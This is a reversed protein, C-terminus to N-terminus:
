QLCTFPHHADKKFAGGWETVHFNGRTFPTITPATTSIPHDIPQFYLTIRLVSDPTPSIILPSITDLTSSHILSIFYFPSKPLTKLWYQSFDNTEKTNLGLKPLLTSFLIHLDKYSSIYGTNDNAPHLLVDPIAAEYYLYPYTKNQYTVVGNPHALVQWGQTPYPPDTYLLKGKPSIKVSIAEDTPPYLYVAPKCYPSVWPTSTSVHPTPSIFGLTHLQESTHSGYGSIVITPQGPTVVISSAAKAACDMIPKPTGPTPLDSLRFYTDYITKSDGYSYIGGSGAGGGQCNAKCVYLIEENPIPYCENGNWIQDNTGKGCEGALGDSTNLIIPDGNFKQGSDRLHYGGERLTVQSKLLGYQANNYSFTHGADTLPSCDASDCCSASAGTITLLSPMNPGSFPKLIGSIGVGFLVIALLLMVGIDGEVLFSKKRKKMQADLM